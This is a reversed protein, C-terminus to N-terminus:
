ASHRALTAPRQGACTQGLAPAFGILSWGGPLPAFRCTLLRGDTLRVEGQWPEKPGSDMVFARADGLIPSPAMKRQWSRLAEAITTDRPGATGDAWLADYASNCMLVAGTPSFVAIGEDLSDIVATGLELDARFRRTMSKEVTIDEFLFAVAGDPHPRGTVRYTQGNGLAWTEEYQGRRAAQEVAAVEARWRKYDKPEPLTQRERMADLVRMLSPRSSLFEPSLGTLDALAPNFVALQRNRDFVALGVSLHAFTKTLTQVFGRLTTEARVTADCPLAYSIRGAGDPVSHIEFWREDDGAGRLSVRIPARDDGHAPTPVADFLRKVPWTPRSDGDRGAGLLDLYPRNAWIIAGAADEAWAPVPARDMTQRMIRLEEEMAHQSMGDVIGGCTEPLPDTLVIRTLGAHWEARLTIPRRTVSALTLRGDRELAAFRSEFDPFRPGIQSLFRAWDDTGLPAAALLARAGDNADVLDHRDFVFVCSSSSQGLAAARMQARHRRMSLGCLVMVGTLCATAAIMIAHFITM